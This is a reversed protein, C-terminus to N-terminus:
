WLDQFEKKKFNENQDLHHPVNTIAEMAAKYNATSHIKYMISAFASSYDKLEDVTEFKNDEIDKIMEDTIKFDDDLYHKQYQM